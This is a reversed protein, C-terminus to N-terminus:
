RNSLLLLLREMHPHHVIAKVLNGVLHRCGFRQWVLVAVFRFLLSFCRCVSSDVFRFTSLGFCWCVFVEVFWFMSVSSRRCVLVDVGWLKAYRKLHLKYIPVWPNIEHSIIWINTGIIIGASQAMTQSHIVYINAGLRQPFNMPRKGSIYFQPNRMRRSHRSRKGQSRIWFFGSTLSGPMCWPVHTVCTGHHIDPDSVWPLSSFTGPMGPAHTVRLKVYRVLHGHSTIYMETGTCKAYNTPHVTCIAVWARIM